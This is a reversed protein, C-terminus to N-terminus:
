RVKEKRAKDAALAADTRRDSGSGMELRPLLLLWLLGQSSVVPLRTEEGRSVPFAPAAALLWFAGVLISVDSSAPVCCGEEDGIFRDGEELFIIIEENRCIEKDGRDLAEKRTSVSHGSM